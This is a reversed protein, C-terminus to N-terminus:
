GGDTRAQGQRQQAQGPRNNKQPAGEYVKHYNYGKHAPRGLWSLRAIKRIQQHDSGEPTQASREVLSSQATLVLAKEM